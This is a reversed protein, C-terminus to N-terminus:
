IIQEEAIRDKLHAIVEEGDHGCIAFCMESRLWKECAFMRNQAARAYTRARKGTKNAYAKYIRAYSMWERCCDLLIAYGLEEYGDDVSKICFARIAEKAIM